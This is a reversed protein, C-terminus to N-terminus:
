VTMCANHSNDLLLMVVKGPQVVEVHRHLISTHGAVKMDVSLHSVQFKADYIQLTNISAQMARELCDSSVRQLM